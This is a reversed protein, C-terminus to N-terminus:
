ANGRMSTFLGSKRLLAYAGFIVAVGLIVPLWAPWYLSYLPSIFQEIRHMTANHSGFESLGYGVLILGLASMAIGSVRLGIHSIAPTSASSPHTLPADPVRTAAWVLAGVWGFFTWGALM